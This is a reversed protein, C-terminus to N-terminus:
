DFLPENQYWTLIEWQSTSNRNGDRSFHDYNEGLIKRGLLEQVRVRESEYVQWLEERRKARRYGAQDWGWPLPLYMTFGKLEHLRRFTNLLRFYMNMVKESHQMRFNPRYTRRGVIKGNSDVEPKAMHMHLNIMPTNLEHKVYDLTGLWDSYAPETARLYDDEFPPFVLEVSRLWCLSTSPVVDTLFVSAELREPTTEVIANPGNSSTIIFRNKSFFVMRAADLITHCVLFLSKPLSWCHCTSSSSSVAHFRRCFCGFRSTKWCDRFKFAHNIASDKGFFAVSKEDWLSTCYCVSYGDKPNWMVEKM